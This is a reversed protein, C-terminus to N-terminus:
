LDEPSGYKLVQDYEEIIRSPPIASPFSMVRGSEREIVHGAGGRRGKKVHEIVYWGASFEELEWGREPDDSPTGSMEAVIREAEDRTIM